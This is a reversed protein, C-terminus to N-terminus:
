VGAVRVADVVEGVGPVDGVVALVEDLIDVSEVEGRVAVVDGAVSIALREGAAIESARLAEVVDSQLQGDRPTDTVDSQIAEDRELEGADSPATGAVDPGAEDPRFNSLVRDSPPVYPVGEEIAVLPDNTDGTAPEVLLDGGDGAYATVAEEDGALDPGEVRSIGSEPDLPDLEPADDSPGLVRDFDSTM